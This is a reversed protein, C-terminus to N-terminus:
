MSERAVAILIEFSQKLVLLSQSRKLSKPLLPVAHNSQDVKAERMEKGYGGANCFQESVLM